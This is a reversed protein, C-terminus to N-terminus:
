RRKGKELKKRKAITHKMPKQLERTHERIAAVARDIIEQQEPSVNV